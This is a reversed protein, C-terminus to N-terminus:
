LYAKRYKVRLTCTNGEYILNNVDPQLRLFAESFNSISDNSNLLVTGTKCNIALLDSQVFASNNYIMVMGGDTNNRLLVGPLDFGQDAEFEIVPYLIFESDSADVQIEDGDDVTFEDETETTDFWFVDKAIFNISVDERFQQGQEFGPNFSSLEVEIYRDIEDNQKRLYGGKLCAKKLASYATEFLAPTDEQLTGTVTVVRSNPMKDAINQSGPAYGLKIYQNNIDFQEERINFSGDFSYVNGNYDELTLTYGM